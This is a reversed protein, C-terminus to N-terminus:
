ERRGTNRGRAREVDAMLRDLRRAVRADIAGPVKLAACIAMLRLHLRMRVDSEVSLSSIVRRAALLRDALVDAATGPRADRPESKTV